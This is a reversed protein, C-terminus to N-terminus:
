VSRTRAKRGNVRGASEKELDIGKRKNNNKGAKQSQRTKTGKAVNKTQTEAKTSKVEDSSFKEGNKDIFIIDKRRLDIVMKFSKAEGNVIAETNVLNGAKLDQAIRDLFGPIDKDKFDVKALINKLNLTQVPPHGKLKQNRNADRDNPDLIFYSTVVKGEAIEDRGVPRGMVLNGMELPTFLRDTKAVDAFDRSGILKGSPNKVTTKLEELHFKQQQDKKFKVEIEIYNLEATYFGTPVTLTEANKYYHRPLDKIYDGLKLRSMESRVNNFTNRDRLENKQEIVKQLRPTLLNRVINLPWPYIDKILKRRDFDASKFTAKEFDSLPLKNYKATLEEYFTLKESAIKKKQDPYLSKLAKEHENWKMIDDLVRDM